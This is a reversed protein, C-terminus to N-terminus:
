GPTLANAITEASNITAQGIAEMGPVFNNSAATFAMTYFQGLVNLLNFNPTTAAVTAAATPLFCCTLLLGGLSIYKTFKGHAQWLSTLTGKQKLDNEM